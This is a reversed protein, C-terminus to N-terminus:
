PTAGTMGAFAPIWISPPMAGQIGAHAPIVLPRADRGAKMGYAMGAFASGASSWSWQMYAYLLAPAPCM